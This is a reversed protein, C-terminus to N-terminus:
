LPIVQGTRSSERAADLVRMTPLVSEVPVPPATGDQCARVFESWIEPAALVDAEALPLFRADAPDTAATFQLQAWTRLDYASSSPSQASGTTGDVRWRPGPQTTTTNIEVLAVCGDEFDIALRAFDDCDSTWVNGRLQAFVRLPRAPILRLMQDVLHSGWDYLGGGGFNAENRWNPRWALTAPGVCSGWQHLRSEINFVKGFVGDRIARRLTLYDLDWRRNHFVNLVRKAQRAAEAMRVSTPLDLAMPKEVMVHKGAALAALTPEAHMSTPTSVLVAEVSPDNILQEISECSQLGEAEAQARRAPTPDYIRAVRAGEVQGIWGAHEAGIRGYGIIGINM